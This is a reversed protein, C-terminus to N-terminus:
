CSLGGNDKPATESASPSAKDRRTAHRTVSVAPSSTGLCPLREGGVCRMVQFVLGRM